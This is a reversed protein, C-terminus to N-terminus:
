FSALLLEKVPLQGFFPLRSRLTTVSYLTCPICRGHMGKDVLVIDGFLFQEPM